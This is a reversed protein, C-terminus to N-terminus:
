LIGLESLSDQMGKWQASENVCQEVEEYNQGIFPLGSELMAKVQAKKSTALLINGFQLNFFSVLKNYFQTALTLSIEDSIAKSHLLNMITQIITRPSETSLLHDVFWYLNIGTPCYVVAHFLKYGTRIDEDSPPEDINKCRRHAAGIEFYSCKTSIIRNSGMQM